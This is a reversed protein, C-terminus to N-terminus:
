DNEWPPYFDKLDSNVPHVPRKTYAQYDTKSNFILVLRDPVDLMSRYGGISEAVQSSSKSIMFVVLVENLWMALSYGSNFPNGDVEIRLGPVIPCINQLQKILTVSLLPNYDLVANLLENRKEPVLDHVRGIIAEFRKRNSAYPECLLLSKDLVANQGEM